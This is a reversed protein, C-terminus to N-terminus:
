NSKHINTVMEDHAMFYKQNLRGHPLFALIWGMRCLKSDKKMYFHSLFTPFYCGFSPIRGSGFKNQKINECTGSFVNCTSSYPLLDMPFAHFMLLPFLSFSPIWLCNFAYLGAVQGEQQVEVLRVFLICM